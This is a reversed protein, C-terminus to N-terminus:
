RRQHNMSACMEITYLVWYNTTTPNFYKFVHVLTSQRKIFKMQNLASQAERTCRRGNFTNIGFCFFNPVLFIQKEVMLTLISILRSFYCPRNSRIRHIKLSVVQGKVVFKMVFFYLKLFGFSIALLEPAM